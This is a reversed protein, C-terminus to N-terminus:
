RRGRVWRVVECPIGGNFVRHIIQPKGGFVQRFRGKPAIAVFSALRDQERWFAGLQRYFGDLQKYNQGLREGYPPNTM